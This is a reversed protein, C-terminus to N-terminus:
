NLDGVFQTIKRARDKLTYKGSVLLVNKHMTLLKSKNSIKIIADKLENKKSVNIRISYGDNLLEDNFSQSSAIIPLGCQIAETIVNSSGEASSPHVLVHCKNYVSNMESKSKIGLYKINKNDIIHIKDIRGVVVLSANLEIECFVDQLIALNKHPKSNGVFLFNLKDMSEFRNLNSPYFVNSDPANPIITTKTKSMLGIKYSEALNKNSFAILGDVKDLLKTFGKLPIKRNIAIESEGSAIVLTRDKEHMKLKTASMIFDWFHSYVVDFQLDKSSVYAFYNLSLLSLNYGFATLNSFSIYIPVHLIINKCIRFNLKKYRIFYKKLSIPAIVHIKNYYPLLESTMDLILDLNEYEILILLTKKELM